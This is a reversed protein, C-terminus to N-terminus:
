CGGETRMPSSTILRECIAVAYSATVKVCKAEIIDGVATAAVFVVLGKHRGVGFGLNNIDTIKLVFRENKKLKDMIWWFNGRHFIM